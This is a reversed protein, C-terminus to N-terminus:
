DVIIRAIEPNIRAVIEYNITNCQTALFDACVKEQQGILIAQTGLHVEPIDTIDIMMLNMAIRGRIMAYRNNVMVSGRNSLGRDYGDSYGIPLIAITMEKDTFFTRDYGVWSHAPITKIQIINTKWQLIPQLSFTTHQKYSIQKNETSSWLGYLGIGLRVFNYHYNMSVTMAASCSAHVFPFVISDNKLHTVVANFRQQQLQTFEQNSSESEAFHTFIGLLDLWERAHWQKIHPVAQDWLIGLRSLGTDIKIHIRIKKQLKKAIEYLQDVTQTDYVVLDIDLEIAYTPNEDIISLVLIPKKIGHQRLLIAETLRVVCLYNVQPNQEALYAISVIGHGYANAKIVAALIVNSGIVSRYQAINHYLAKKSIEIWSSAYSSLPTFFSLDSYSLGKKSYDIISSQLM